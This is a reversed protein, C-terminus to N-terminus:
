ARWPKRAVVRMDRGAEHFIANNDLFLIEFGIEELVQQMEGKTWVYRHTEYDLEDWQNGYFQTFGMNLDGLPTQMSKKRNLYWAICGDLDPHEMILNGGPKLKHFFTHLLKITEWRVFHEIVHVLLMKDVSDNDVDLKRVDMKLDYRSSNRSSDNREYDFNDVNIWGDLYHGGCGLHLNVEKLHHEKAYQNIPPEM